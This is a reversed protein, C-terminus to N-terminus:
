QLNGRGSANVGMFLIAGSSTERIIFLFPHDAIFSGPILGNGQVTTVAAVESGNEDVEIVASQLIDQISVGADTMDGFDAKLSSFADVMGCAKLSPSLSVNTTKIKFKPLSVSLTNSDTGSLRSVLRDYSVSDFGKIFRIFDKDADPLIVDMVFAGNGYPMELIEVGSESDYLYPYKGDNVMFDIRSQGGKLMDFHGKRTRSPDFKEKWKGKFYLANAIVLDGNLEKVVERIMKGTKDSAWKNIVSVADPSNFDLSKVYADYDKELTSKFGDKVPFNNRIWLSNALSLSTSRDAKGLGSNMAKFTSNITGIEQGECGIAKIIQDYTDGTAGNSLMCLSTYASLPSFLLNEGGSEDALHAFMNFAFSNGAEIVKAEARTLVIDNKEHFGGADEKSCDALLFFSVFGIFTFLYKKM